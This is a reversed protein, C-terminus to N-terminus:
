NDDFVWRIQKVKITVFELGYFVLNEDFKVQLINGPFESTRVVTCHVNWVLCLGRCHSPARKGLTRSCLCVTPFWSPHWRHNRHEAGHEPSESIGHGEM